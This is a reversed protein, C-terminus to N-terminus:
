LVEPVFFPTFKKKKKKKFLVDWEDVNRSIIREGRFCFGSWEWKSIGAATCAGYM